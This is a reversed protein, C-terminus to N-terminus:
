QVNTGIFAGRFTLSGGTINTVVVLLNIAPNVTDFEITCDVGNQAFLEGPIDGTNPLQSVNGVKVDTVVFSPALSAAIIFREPRYLCQPQTQITASAGGAVVTAPLPCVYRRAKQNSRPVVGAGHAVQKQQIAQQGPSQGGGGGFNMYHFPNLKNLYHFPNLSFGMMDANGAIDAMGLMASVPDAGYMGGHSMGAGGHMVAGRLIAGMMAEYPNMGSVFQGTGSVFQGAGAIDDM